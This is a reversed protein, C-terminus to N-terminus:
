FIIKKLIGNVFAGFFFFVGLFLDLSLHVLGRSQFSYFVTSILYIFSLIFLYAKGMSQFVRNNYLHWNEGFQNLSIRDLGASKKKQHFKSIRFKINFHPDLLALIIRFFLLDPTNVLYWSKVFYCYNLCYSVSTLITVYVLLVSYLSCFCVQINATVENVVFAYSCNLPPFHSIKLLHPPGIAIWLPFCLQFAVLNFFTNAIHIGLLHSLVWFM